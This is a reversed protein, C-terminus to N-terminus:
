QRLFKFPVNVTQSGGPPPFKWGKVKTEICRALAADSSQTSVSQVSGSPGITIAARVDGNQANSNDWCGRKVGPMYSQVTREIQQQSLSGGGGGGGSTNNSTPGSGGNPNLLKSLDAAGNGSAAPTPSQGKGGSSSKQSTAAGKNPDEPEVAPASPEPPPVPTETPRASPAAVAPKTEEPQVKPQKPLFLVVAATVGFAVATLLMAIPIWPPGKKQAHAPFPEEVSPGATGASAFGVHPTASGNMETGATMPEVGTHFAGPGIGSATAAASVEFPGGSGPAVFPAPAFPDSNPAFASSMFPNAPPPENLAARAARVLEEPIADMVTAPDETENGRQAAVDPLPTRPLIGSHPRGGNRAGFLSSLESIESAKKWDGLGERWALSEGTIKGIGMRQRVDDLSLPGVPAGDIAVFWQAPAPAETLSDLAAASTSLADTLSGNTTSEDDNGHALDSPRALGSPRQPALPARGQFPAVGPRALQQTAPNLPNQARFQGTSHALLPRTPAPRRVPGPPKPPARLPAKASSAPPPPVTPSRRSPPASPAGSASPSRIEILHECKRCKMRVTKGAVKDDDIQYKTKCADCLFKVSHGKFSGYRAKECFAVRM